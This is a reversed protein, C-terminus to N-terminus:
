RHFANRLIKVTLFFGWIGGGGGDGGMVSLGMLFTGWIYHTVM